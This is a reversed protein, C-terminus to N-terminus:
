FIVVSHEIKSVQTGYKTVSAYMQYYSKPCSLWWELSSYISIRHLIYGDINM